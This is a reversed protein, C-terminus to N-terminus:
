PVEFRYGVGYVSTIGEFQPEVAQTKRRISKIHSDIDRDSVDRLEAHACDLLRTRSFVRGSQSMLLRHMRFELTALALTQGRWHIRLAEDDVSGLVDVCLNRFM